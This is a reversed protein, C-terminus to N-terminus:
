NTRHGLERERLDKFGVEVEKLKFYKGADEDFLVSIEEVEEYVKQMLYADWERKRNKHAEDPTSFVGKSTKYLKQIKM